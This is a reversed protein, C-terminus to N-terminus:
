ERCALELVQMKNMKSFRRSTSATSARAAQPHDGRDGEPCGDIIDTFGEWCGPRGGINPRVSCALM